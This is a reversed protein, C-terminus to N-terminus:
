FRYNFYTTVMWARQASGTERVFAGPQFVGAFFDVSLHRSAAWQLKLGGDRGVDRSRSAGPARLSQGGGGYVTDRDSQRRIWAIDFRMRLYPTMDVEIWPRAFVVNATSISFFEDITPGAPYLSHFTQLDAAAPDRDGSAASARFAVRMPLHAVFRYGLDGTVAWARIKGAGFTGTQYTAEVDTDWSGRRGALRTGFSHRDDTALGQVFRAGERRSAIWYLDLTLPRLGAPSGVVYVGGATEAHIRGDDFHGTRDIEV